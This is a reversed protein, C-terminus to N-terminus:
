GHRHIICRRIMVCIGRTVDRSISFIPRRERPIIRQCARTIIIIIQSIEMHCIRYSGQIARLVVSAPAIDIFPFSSGHCEGRPFLRPPFETDELTGAERSIRPCARRASAVHFPLFALSSKWPSYSGLRIGGLINMRRASARELFSFSIRSGGVSRCVANRLQFHYM